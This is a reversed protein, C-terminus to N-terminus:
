AVVPSANKTQPAGLQRIVERILQVRKSVDEQAKEIRLKDNGALKIM